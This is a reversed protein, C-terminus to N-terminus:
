TYWDLLWNILECDILRTRSHTHSAALRTHPKRSCSCRAHEAAHHLVTELLVSQNAVFIGWTAPACNISPLENCMKNDFVPLDLLRHM